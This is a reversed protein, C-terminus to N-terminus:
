FPESYSEGQSAFALDDDDQLDVGNFLLSPWGMDDDWPLLMNYPPAAMLGGNDKAEILDDLFREITPVPCEVNNVIVHPWWGRGQPKHKVPLLCHETTVPDDNNGVLEVEDFFALLREKAGSQMDPMDPFSRLPPLELAGASASTPQSGRGRQAQIFDTLASCATLALAIAPALTLAAARLSPGHDAGLFRWLARTTQPDM